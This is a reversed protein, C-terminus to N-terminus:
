KKRRLVLAAAFAALAVLPLSGPEPVACPLGVVCGGTMPKVQPKVLQPVNPSEAVFEKTPTPASAAPAAPATQAMAVPAILAGLCWAALAMKLKMTM